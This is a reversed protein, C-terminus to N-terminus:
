YYRELWLSTHSADPCSLVRVNLSSDSICHLTSATLVYYNSEEFDYTFAVARDSEPLSSLAAGTPAEARLNLM